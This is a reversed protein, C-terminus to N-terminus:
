KFQEQGNEDRYLLIKGATSDFWGIITILETHHKRHCTTCICVCNSEEYKGGHTIRHVDLLKYREEECIQCCRHRRKFAKKGIFPKKLNKM